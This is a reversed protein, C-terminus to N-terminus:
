TNCKFYKCITNIIINYLEPTLTGTIPYLCPLNYDTLTLRSGM